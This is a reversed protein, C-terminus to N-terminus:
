SLWDFRLYPIVISALKQVYYFTYSGERVEQKIFNGNQDLEVVLNLLISFLFMWKLTGFFGGTLRDLTSLELAKVMSYLIKGLVVIAVIILIFAVLYSLVGIIHPSGVLQILYPAIFESLKGAFVAGVVLGVLTAIQMVFGSVYGKIFSAALLILVLLDFWNMNDIFLVYIGIFM